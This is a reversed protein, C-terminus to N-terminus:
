RVSRVLRKQKEVIRKNAWPLSVELPQEDPNEEEAPQSSDKCESWLARIKKVAGALDTDHSFILVWGYTLKNNNYFYKTGIFSYWGSERDLFQVMSNFWRQKNYCRCLLRIDGDRSGVTVVELCDLNEISDKLEIQLAEFAKSM